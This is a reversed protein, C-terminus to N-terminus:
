KGHTLRIIKSNTGDIIILFTGGVRGERLSGSIVWYNDILYIEYPRQEKINNKGYVSFLLPEAVKIAAEKNKLLLDTVVVNHMTTDSLAQKLAARANAEGPASIKGM